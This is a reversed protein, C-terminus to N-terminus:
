YSKGKFTAWLIEQKNNRRENYIEEKTKYPAIHASKIKGNKRTLQIFLDGCRYRVIDKTANLLQANYGLLLQDIVTNFQLENQTKMTIHYLRFIYETHVFQLCDTFKLQNFRETIDM